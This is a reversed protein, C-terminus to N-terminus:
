FDSFLDYISFNITKYNMPGLTKSLNITDDNRGMLIM